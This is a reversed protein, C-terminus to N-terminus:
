TTGPGPGDHDPAAGLYAEVLSTDHVLERAPGHITIRGTALVYGYDAIKLTQLANQEVILVTTGEAKIEAIIRFIDKVVLPALGLSPEDLLLVAPSGMLARAIALMQLEGGSLTYALQGSREALRPFYGYCREFNAAIHKKQRVTFAGVRLNEEVTLDRFIQRGEPSQTLGLRTVREASLGGIGVGFAEISGEAPAVLGSIARLTSTKGAGNAGLLAVVQGRGVDLDIGKVADIAGYSVVLNRIKLAPEPM